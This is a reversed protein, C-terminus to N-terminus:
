YIWHLELVPLKENLQSALEVPKSDAFPFDVDKSSILGARLDGVSEFSIFNSLIRNIM